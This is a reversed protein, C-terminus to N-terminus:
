RATKEIYQMIKRTSMKGVDLWKIRSDARFWTYQRKAFRRTNMKLIAKAEDLSYKGDLYGSIERLGLISGATKSLRRKRLKKVEAVAGARFMEDVRADIQAYLEERPRTLAFIKINYRDKLGRTLSKLETMTKGTLEYIELARIVRRKDNPHISGASRPDINALKAHLRPTGYKAAFAEMKARFKMDAEPSPFLGDILARVYLGSGGAVIPVKGRKIIAAIASSAKKIFLAVSYEEEPSLLEVLHHRARKKDAPGPAQSLIRMSKYIQMSDASIVEGGARGAIESALSTKGIATPGVIFVVNKSAPATM